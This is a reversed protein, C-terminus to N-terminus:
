GAMKALINLSEQAQHDFGYRIIAAKGEDPLSMWTNVAEKEAKNRPYLTYCVPIPSPKLGIAPSDPQKGNNTSM